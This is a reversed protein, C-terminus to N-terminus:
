PSSRCCTWGPIRKALAILVQRDVMEINERRARNFQHFIWLSLSQVGKIFHPRLTDRVCKVGDATKLHERDLLGKHMEADRVLRNKLTPSRKGAELVTLDLWDDMLEEYKFCSTPGDFFVPIKTTIGSEASFQVTSEARYAGCFSDAPKEKNEAPLDDLDKEYDNMM